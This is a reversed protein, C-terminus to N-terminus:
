YALPILSGLDMLKEGSLSLLNKNKKSLFNEIEKFNPHNEINGFFALTNHSILGCCGGIFGYNLEFLNIHGKEILLCDINHKIVENYIGEDSTIISNEDVICISCKCYGQNVHIKEMKNKHIYDLLISDTYKFNHIVKNGLIAVNYQINNPYKKSIPSNGKIVNFGLPTLIEDYYNYVNPAVLIDKNNLKVLCIDPHSSIADYTEHCKITKIMNINLNALNKMIDSSVRNDILGLSIEKNPIFPSEVFKM